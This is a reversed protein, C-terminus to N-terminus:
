SVTYWYFTCFKLLANFFTWFILFKSDKQLTPIREYLNCLLTKIEKLCIITAKFFKFNPNNTLWLDDRKEPDLIKHYYKVSRTLFKLICITMLHLKIM